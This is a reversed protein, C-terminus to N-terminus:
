HTSKHQDSGNIKQLTHAFSIIGGVTKQVIADLKDLSPNPERSVEITLAYTGYKMYAYDIFEGQTQYDYYSQKFLRIQMAKAIIKGIRLFNQEHRSVSSSAGWPWLIAEMGSHLASSGVINYRRMLNAVLQTERLRFSPGDHFPSPYDRNPDIGGRGYRSNTLHGDPNVLPQIIFTFTNLLREIVLSDKKRALFDIVGLAAETSAKENGHHTGNIYIHPRSPEKNLGIKVYSIRHGGSSRGLEHFSM